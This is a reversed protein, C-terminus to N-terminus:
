SSTLWRECRKHHRPQGIHHPNIILHWTPAYGPTQARSYSCKDPTVFWQGEFSAPPLGNPGTNAPRAVQNGYSDLYIAEGAPGAPGPATFADKEGCGSVLTAISLAAIACIPKFM